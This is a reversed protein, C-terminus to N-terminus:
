AVWIAPQPNTQLCAALPRALRGSGPTRVGEAIQAETDAGAFRIPREGNGLVDRVTQTTDCAVPGVEIMRSESRTLGDLAADTHPHGPTRTVAKM